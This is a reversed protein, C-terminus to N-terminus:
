NDWLVPLGYVDAVRSPNATLRGLYDEEVCERDKSENFHWCDDGEVLGDTLRDKQDPEFMYLLGDNGQYAMTEDAFMVLVWYIKEHRTLKM